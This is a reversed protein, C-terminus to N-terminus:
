ESEKRIAYYWHKRCLAVRVDGFKTHLTHSSYSKEGCMDTRRDGDNAQCPFAEVKYTGIFMIPLYGLTRMEEYSMDHIDEVKKDLPNM